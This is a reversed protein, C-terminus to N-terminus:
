PVWIGEFVTLVALEHRNFGYREIEDLSVSEKIKLWEGQWECLAVRRASCREILHSATAATRGIKKKNNKRNNNNNNNNSKM